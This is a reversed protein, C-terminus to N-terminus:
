CFLYLLMCAAVHAATATCLSIQGDSSRNVVRESSAPAESASDTGADQSLAHQLDPFLERCRSPTRGEVEDAICGVVHPFTHENDAAAASSRSPLAGIDYVLLADMAMAADASTLPAANIAMVADANAVASDNNPSPKPESCRM